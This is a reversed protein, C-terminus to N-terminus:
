KISDAQAQIFKWTREENMAYSFGQGRDKWKIAKWAPSQRLASVDKQAEARTPVPIRQERFTGEARCYALYRKPDEPLGALMYGESLVFFSHGSAAVPYLPWRTPPMTNFPLGLGGYMPPRLPQNAKPQFLIRCVWGVREPVSFGKGINDRKFDHDSVLATLERTAATEGLAVFHNAAQALIAATFSHDRFLQPVEAQSFRFAACVLLLFLTIKV